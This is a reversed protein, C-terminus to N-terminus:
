LGGMAALQEDVPCDCENFNPHKCLPCQGRMSAPNFNVLVAEGSLEARIAELLKGDQGQGPRVGVSELLSLTEQLLKRYRANQDQVPNSM